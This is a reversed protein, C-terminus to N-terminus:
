RGLSKYFDQSANEGLVVANLFVFPDKCLSSRLFDCPSVDPEGEVDIRPEFALRGLFRQIKGAHSLDNGAKIDPM